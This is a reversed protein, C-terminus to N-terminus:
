RLKDYVTDKCEICQNFKKHNARGCTCVWYNYPNAAVRKRHQREKNNRLTCSKCESKYGEVGISTPYFEMFHLSKKCVTCTRQERRIKVGWKSM